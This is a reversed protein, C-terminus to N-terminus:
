FRRLDFSLQPSLSFGLAQLSKFAYQSVFITYRFLSLCSCQCVSFQPLVTSLNSLSLIFSHLFSLFLRVLPHVFRGGDESRKLWVHEFPQNSNNVLIKFKDQPRPISPVHFPVHSRQLSTKRAVRVEVADDGGVENKKNKKSKKSEVIQFGGEEMKEVNGSEEKTRSISFEDMSANFRELLEDNLLVVWDHADDLDAPQEQVNGTLIQSSVISSLLSESKSSIEKAPIGFEDFNRYFHFDRGAPVTRSHDSLRAASAALPGKALALLADAKTDEPSGSEEM